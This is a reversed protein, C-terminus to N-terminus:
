YRPLLGDEPMGGRFVETFGESGYGDWWSDRESRGDPYGNGLADKLEDSTRRLVWDVVAIVEESTMNEQTQGQAM